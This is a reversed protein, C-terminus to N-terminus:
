GALQRRWAGARLLRSITPKKFSLTSGPASTM